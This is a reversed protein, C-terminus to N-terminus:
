NNKFYNTLFYFLTRMPRGSMGTAYYPYEDAAGMVGAIDLHVWEKCQVFESLFAAATCSGAPRAVKSTNVVDALQSDTVQSKYLNYLPMRWVRDGTYVAAERLGEFLKKSHTFAGAAGAGLAIKMAGTLTAIDLIAQPKFEHAYCLADALILRGEADTNDVQISKGNMAFVVDGPKTASGSPMNECLPALAVINVKADLSALALTTSIVNAAGSMDYRMKDMGGSPKISIGGSDFCVGKGVLVFPNSDPKNNYHVEVFKSPEVSGRGVSLFSGMKKAEAWQEDHVLVKVNPYDKFLDQVYKGFITPTLYNSPLDALRRCVNQANALRTGREFGEEADKVVPTRYLDVKVNKKKYKKSKLEDFHFLALHAGEAVAEADGCADFHVEDVGQEDRVSKAAIAISCRINERREDIDESENYGADQSGLGVVTVVPYDAHLGYFKKASGKKNPGFQDVLHKLKGETQSDFHAASDTLVKKVNNNNGSTSDQEGSVQYAGLVLAKTM